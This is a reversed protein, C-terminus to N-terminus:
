TSKSSDSLTVIPELSAQHIKRLCERQLLIIWPWIMVVLPILYGLVAGTEGFYSGWMWILLGSVPHSVFSVKLFPDYMHCRVFLTASACQHHVFLAMALLSAPLLPPLRPELKQALWGITWPRVIEPPDAVVPVLGIAVLFLLMVAALFLNSQRFSRSYLERFAVFNKQTALTTLVPIRTQLWAAAASNMSSLVSHVLGLRGAAAPGTYAFVVPILPATSLTVLLGQLGARLQLPWAASWWDYRTTLKQRLIMLLFARQVFALYGFEFVVRTMAVAAACWLGLQFWLTLWMSTTGAVAMLFRMRQIPLVEGAGELYTLPIAQVQSCAACFVVALWPYFWNISHSDAEMSFFYIGLGSVMVLFLSAQVLSWWLGQYLLSAARSKEEEAGNWEWDANVPSRSPRCNAFSHSSLNLFVITLGLEFMNQLNLLSSFTFFYGQEDETLQSAVLLVTVPGTVLQWLRSAVAFAVARSVGWKRALKVWLGASTQQSM